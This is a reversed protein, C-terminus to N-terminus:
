GGMEVDWKYPVSESDYPIRFEDPSKYDYPETCCNILHCPEDGVAAFGHVVLPPIKVLTPNADGIDFEQVEGFTPSSERQDYLVLKTRGKVVTFFDTQVKHYHWAKAVNPNCVSMYVQGFKLFMKDDCRLIEMLLGRGDRIVKLKKIEVGDIM